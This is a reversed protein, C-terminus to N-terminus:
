QAVGPFPIIKATPAVEALAREVRAQNVRAARRAAIFSRLEEARKECVDLMDTTFFAAPYKEALTRSRDAM